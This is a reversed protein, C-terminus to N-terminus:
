TRNKSKNKLTIADTRKKEESKETTPEHEKPTPDNDTQRFSNKRRSNRSSM